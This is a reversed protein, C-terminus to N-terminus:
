KRWSGGEGLDAKALVMKALVMKALDAKALRASPKFCPRASRM